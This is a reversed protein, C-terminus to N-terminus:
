FYSRFLKEYSPSMRLNRRGMSIKATNLAKDLEYRSLKGGADSWSFSNIFKPHFGGGFLNCSIGIVTGSNLMTSIGTKTHDGIISGLFISGTNIKNKNIQISIQSYNNKLNSTTTGAGLNIWECIYSHGIFGLHQKNVHSHFISSTIEGSVKCNDGIRLPGYLKSGSRVLSNEGIYVPGKIYSFPEIEVNKSIYVPGKTADIVVNRDIKCNQETFIRAPNISEAQIRHRKEKKKWKLLIELDKLLEEEHYLVLDAPSSIIKLEDAEDTNLQSLQVPKLNLSKIKNFSILGDGQNIIRALQQIKSKSIIFAVINNNHLIITDKIEDVTLLLGEIFTKTYILRSSLFLYDDTAYTNVTSGPNAEKYFSSLSKRCHVGINQQQLINETKDRLSFIGCLIDSTHRLL